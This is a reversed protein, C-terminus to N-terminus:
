VLANSASEMLEKYGHETDHNQFYNTAIAFQLQQYFALAEPYSKSQLVTAVQLNLEELRQHDHSLTAAFREYADSNKAPAGKEDVGIGSSILYVVQEYHALDQQLVQKDPGVKGSTKEEALADRVTERYAEMIIHLKAAVVHTETAKDLSRSQRLVLDLTTKYAQNRAEKPVRKLRMVIDEVKM